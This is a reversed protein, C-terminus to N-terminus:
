KVINAAFKLLAERENEIEGSIVRELLLGLADGVAKGPKMGAAILDGGNVALMSVCYCEGKAIIDRFIEEVEGIGNLWIGHPNPAQALADARKVRILLEFLRSGFRALRRKIEAPTHEFRDDHYKVLMLIDESMRAPFRLRRLIEEAMDHSKQQHGRFHDIGQEDRTHCAPKGIDHLLMAMRVIIDKEASAVSKIIHRYVDYMHYPHNQPFDVCPALEPICELLIDRHETFVGEFGRGLIAKVLETRVRERAVISLSSKMAHMARATDAEIAFGLSSAFRACRLIRLADEGFRDKPSGVCRIIGGALDSLGGFCDIVGEDPSWALANVTFDRRSLDGRLDASFSVSDPRRSDSYHGDARFTTIEVPEGDFLVTVTGHKIGTPVVTYESFVGCVQDPLANTTIDWDGPAIGLLSDRVCGGVAYAAFGSERLSAMAKSAARTLAIEYSVPVREM